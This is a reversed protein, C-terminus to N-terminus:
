ANGQRIFQCYRALGVRLGVLRGSVIKPKKDKPKDPHRQPKGPAQSVERDSTHPWMKNSQSKAKKKTERTLGITNTMRKLQQSLTLKKDRQSQSHKRNV